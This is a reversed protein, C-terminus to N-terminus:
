IYWIVLSVAIVNVNDITSYTAFFKQLEFTKDNAWKELKVEFLNLLFDLTVDRKKQMGTDYLLLSLSFNSSRGM